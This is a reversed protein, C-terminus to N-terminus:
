PRQELHPITANADERSWAPGNVLVTSSEANIKETIAPCSGFSEVEAERPYVFKESATVDPISPSRIPMGASYLTSPISM